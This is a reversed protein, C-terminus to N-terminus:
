SSDVNVNSQFGQSGHAPIHVPTDGTVCFEGTLTM